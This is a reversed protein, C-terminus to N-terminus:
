LLIQKNDFGWCWWLIVRRSATLLLAPLCSKSLRPHSTHHWLSSRFLLIPSPSSSVTAMELLSWVLFSDSWPAVLQQACCLSLSQMLLQSCHLCFDISSSLFINIVPCSVLCAFDEMVPCWAPRSDSSVVLLFSTSVTTLECVHVYQWSYQSNAACLQWQWFIHLSALASAQTSLVLLCCATSARSLFITSLQCWFLQGSHV